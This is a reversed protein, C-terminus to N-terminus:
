KLEKHDTPNIREGQRGITNRSNSKGFSFYGLVMEASPQHLLHGDIASLSSCFSPSHNQPFTILTVKLLVLSNVSNYRHLLRLLSSGPGKRSSNISPQSSGPPLCAHMNKTGAAAQCRDEVTCGPPCVKENPNKFSCPPGATEVSPPPAPPLSSPKPLIEEWAEAHLCM